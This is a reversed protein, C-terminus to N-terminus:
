DAYVLWKGESRWWVGRWVAATSEALMVDKRRKVGWGKWRKWKNRWLCFSDVVVSPKNTRNEGGKNIKCSTLDRPPNAKAPTHRWLIRLTIHHSHAQPSLHHSSIHSIHHAFSTVQRPPLSMMILSLIKHLTTYHTHHMNLITLILSM